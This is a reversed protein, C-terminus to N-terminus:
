REEDTLLHSAQVQVQARRADRVTKPTRTARQRHADPPVSRTRPGHDTTRSGYDSTRPHPPDRVGQPAPNPRSPGIGRVTARITRPRHRGDGPTSEKEAGPRVAARHGCAP